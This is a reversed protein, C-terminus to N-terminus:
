GGGCVFLFVLGLGRWLGLRNRVGIRVRVGEM